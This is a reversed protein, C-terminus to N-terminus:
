ADTEGSGEWRNYHLVEDIPRRRVPGFPRDPWGVPIVAGVRLHDPIELERAFAEPAFHHYTTFAAGLGLARAAILINQAAPFICAWAYFEDPDEPPYSLEAGVVILAPVKPLTAALHAGSSSNPKGGSTREARQQLGDAVAEGLTQIKEPDTVVLFHWPQANLPNPARTGAWILTRLLEDPVPTSKLFRMSRSTGLVELVSAGGRDSAPVGAQDGTRRSLDSKSDPEEM